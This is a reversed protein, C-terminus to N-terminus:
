TRGSLQTVLGVQDLLAARWVLCGVLQLYGGLLQLICRHCPHIVADLQSVGSAAACAAAATAVLSCSTTQDKKTQELLVLLCSPVVAAGASRSRGTTNTQPACVCVCRCKPAPVSLPQPHQQNTQKCTTSCLCRPSTAKYLQVSGMCLWSIVALRHSLRSQRTQNNPPLYTTRLKARLQSPGNAANQLLTTWGPQPQQAVSFM